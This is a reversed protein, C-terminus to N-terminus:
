LQKVPQKIQTRVLHGEKEDIKVLRSNETECTSLLMKLIKNFFVVGYRLYFFRRGVSNENHSVDFLCSKYQTSFTGIRLKEPGYEFQNRLNVRCIEMNVGFASFYPGSFRRFQCKKRLTLCQQDFM